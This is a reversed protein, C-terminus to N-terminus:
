RVEMYDEKRTRTGKPHSKLWVAVEDKTLRFYDFVSYVDAHRYKGYMRFRVSGTVKLFGLRAMRKVEDHAIGFKQQFCYTSVGLHLCHDAIEEISIADKLLLYMDAKTLKREDIEFGFSRILAALDAKDVVNQTGKNACIEYRIFEEPSNFRDMFNENDM